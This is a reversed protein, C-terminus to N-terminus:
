RRLGFNTLGFAIGFHILVFALYFLVLNLSRFTASKIKAEPNGRNWQKKYLRQIGHLKDKLLILPTFLMIRNLLSALIVNKCCVYYCIISTIGVYFYGIMLMFIDTVQAKEKYFCKLAIFMLVLFLLYFKYSNHFVHLLFVYEIVSYITFLWRHEKINKSLIMFWAFFIGEPIQGLLLELIKM